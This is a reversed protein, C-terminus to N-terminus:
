SGTNKAQQGYIAMKEVFIPLFHTKQAFLCSESAIFWKSSPMQCYASPFLRSVSAIQRNDTTM